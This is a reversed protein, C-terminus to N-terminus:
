LSWRSWLLFCALHKGGQVTGGGVGCVGGVVVVIWCSGHLFLLYFGGLLLLLLLSVFFFCVFVVFGSVFLRFFM